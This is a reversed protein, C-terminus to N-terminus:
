LDSIERIERNAISLPLCPWNYASGGGDVGGRWLHFRAATGRSGCAQTTTMSAMSERAAAIAGREAQVPRNRCPRATPSHIRGLNHGCVSRVATPTASCRIPSVEWACGATGGTGHLLFCRTARLARSSDTPLSLNTKNLKVPPLVEEIQARANEMWPPLACSTVSNRTRSCGLRIAIEFLRGRARPISRTFTLASIVPSYNFGAQVLQERIANGRM